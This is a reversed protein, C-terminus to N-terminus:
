NCGGVESRQGGAKSKRGKVKSRRGKVESSRGGREGVPHAGHYPFAAARIPGRPWRGRSHKQAAASTAASCRTSPQRSRSSLAQLRVPDLGSEPDLMCSQTLCTCGFHFGPLHFCPCSGATGQNLKSGRTGFALRQAM